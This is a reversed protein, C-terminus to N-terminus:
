VERLGGDPGVAWAAEIQPAALGVGLLFWLWVMLSIGQMLPLFLFAVLSGVWGAFAAAAFARLSPENVDVQQRALRVLILGLFGLWLALGWVGMEEAIQFLSGEVHYLGELEGKPEVMGMGVGAPNAALHQIAQLTDVIHYEGSLNSVTSRLFDFVGLALFLLGVALVTVGVVVGIRNWRRPAVMVRMRRVGPFALLGLAGCGAIFGVIASRSFTVALSATFLIALASLILQGGPRAGPLSSVALLFLLVMDVGLENPGTVTSAPRLYMSGRFWVPPVVLSGDSRLYGEQRYTAEDWTAAQILAFVSILLGVALWAALLRRLGIRSPRLGRAILFVGLPLMYGRYSTLGAARNPSVLVDVAGLVVIAALLINVANPRLPPRSKWVSLLWRLAVVGLLALVVAIWWRSIATADPTSLGGHVSMWRTGLDRFPVALVLGSLVLFPRRWAVVLTLGGAILFVVLTTGGLQTM